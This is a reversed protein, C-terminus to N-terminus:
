GSAEERGSPTGPLDIRAVTGTGPRSELGVTGGLQEVLTRAIYLGLGSGQGPAKTTFFPEGARALIEPAMGAGRDRVEVAVAAGGCRVRLAVEGEGGAQLANTLVVRLVRELGRAPGRVSVAGCDVDLRVRDRGPLGDLAGEIWRDVALDVIPEGANEGARASMQQLIGKCRDV